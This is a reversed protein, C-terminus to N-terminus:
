LFDVCARQLNVVLTFLQTNIQLKKHLGLGIYEDIYMNQIM